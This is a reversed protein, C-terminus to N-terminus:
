ATVTGRFLRKAEHVSRLEAPALGLIQRLESARYTVSREGPDLLANNSAFIVEEGDLVEARVRVVLGAEAFESLPMRLVEEATLPWEPGELAGSLTEAVPLTEEPKRNLLTLLQNEREKLAQRIKPPLPGSVQVSGGKARLLVGRSRVDALLEEIGM